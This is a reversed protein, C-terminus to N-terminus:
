AYKKKIGNLEVVSDNLQIWNFPGSNNKASKTSFANWIIIQSALKDSYKIHIKCNQSWWFVCFVLLTLNSIIDTEILDFGMKIWEENHAYHVIWWIDRLMAILVIYGFFVTANINSESRIMYKPNRQLIQKQWIFNFWRLGVLHYKCATWLNSQKKVNMTCYTLRIKAM